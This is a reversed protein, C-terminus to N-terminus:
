PYYDREKAGGDLWWRRSKSPILYAMPLYAAWRPAAGDDGLERRTMLASDGSYKFLKISPDYPTHVPRCDNYNYKKLIKEIYHSQDLSLSTATRTIRIGLIVSAEGLDKMVFNSSSMSKVENVVIINTGFILLDDVYLCIITCINDACKYYICKDSENIRFVDSIVLSDFKEHWLKPAQKLSYM